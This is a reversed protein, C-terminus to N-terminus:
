APDDPREDLFESAWMAAERVAPDPDSLLADIVPRARGSAVYILDTITAQLSDQDDGLDRASARILRPLADLGALGALIDAIVDRGYFNEENLFQDLHAALVPILAQDGSAVLEDVMQYARTSDDEPDDICIILEAITAVGASYRRVV